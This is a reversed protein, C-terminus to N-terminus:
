FPDHRTFFEMNNRFLMRKQERTYKMPGFTSWKAQRLCNLGQPLNEPILRRPPDKKFNTKQNM